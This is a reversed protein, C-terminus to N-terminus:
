KVEYGDEELAAKIAEKSMEEDSVEESAAYAEATMTMTIKKGDQEFQMGNLEGDESMSMGLSLLGYMGQATEEDDFEMVMKVTEVKDNKFTVTIEEKCNGMM